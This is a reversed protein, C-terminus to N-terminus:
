TVIPEPTESAAPASNGVKENVQTTTRLTQTIDSCGRFAIKAEVQAYSGSFLYPCDFHSEIEPKSKLWQCTMKCRGALNQLLRVIPHPTIVDYWNKLMAAQLWIPNQRPLTLVGVFHLKRNSRPTPDLFFTLVTLFLWLTTVEGINDRTYLEPTKVPPRIEWKGNKISKQLRRVVTPLCGSNRCGNNRCGSNRCRSIRKQAAQSAVNENHQASVLLILLNREIKKARV